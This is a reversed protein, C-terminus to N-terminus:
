LKKLIEEPRDVINEIGEAVLRERPVFGWSCAVFPVEANRATDRDVLSDGIYLADGPLEQRIDLVIQPCPKRDI